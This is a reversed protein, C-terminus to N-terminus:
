TKSEMIQGTAPDYQFTEPLNYKARFGNWIAQLGDRMLATGVEAHTLAARAASVANNEEPTLTALPKKKRKTM